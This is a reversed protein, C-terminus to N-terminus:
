GGVAALCCGPGWAASQALWHLCMVQVDRLAINSKPCTRSGTALWSRLSELCYLQGSGCLLVPDQISGLSIPCQFEQLSLVSCGAPLPSHLLAHM